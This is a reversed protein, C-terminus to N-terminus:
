YKILFICKVSYPRVKNGNYVANYRSLTLDFGRIKSSYGTGGHGMIEGSASVKAFVGSVTYHDNYDM